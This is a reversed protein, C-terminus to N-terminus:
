LLWFSMKLRVTSCSLTMVDPLERVAQEITPLLLQLVYDESQRPAIQDIGGPPLREGFSPLGLYAKWAYVDALPMTEALAQESNPFGFGHWLIILPAPEDQREPFRLLVPARAAQLSEVRSM